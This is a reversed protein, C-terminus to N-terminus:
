EHRIADVPYLRAAQRAPYLTALFSIVLSASIIVAIDVPDYSVPLRDIFYVDGPIKILEYTDIIWILFLGGGAGLLSGIVGIVIGQLMFIRQVQSKKLGMSKLIGIERTKDTVVMVLTSIINFAAVVVILLLIIGMALKELQLAQFLSGNAQMWDDVRYPYGLTNELVRGVTDALLPDEVRVELGTVGTGLGTLDQAGELTTYMFKQDYEYMDTRFTGTVEFKRVRPVLGLPSVQVGQFGTVTLIRGPLAAFREALRIGLVIPPYGSQTEGLVLDGRQIQAAVDTIPEGQIDPDIGRLIAAEAYSGTELGLGVETQIFPAAAVVGDIERTRELTGPWLEGDIRMDTGYVTVWIHPNMGLIKERLDTQLGTMVSTVVILAMVGVFVGGMAILTILSLFRAGRGSALYRRAIFWELSV